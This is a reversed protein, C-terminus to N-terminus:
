AEKFEAYTGVEGRFSIYDTDKIDQTKLWAKAATFAGIPLNAIHDPVVLPNEKTYGEQLKATEEVVPKGNKEVINNGSTPDVGSDVIATNVEQEAQISEPARTAPTYTPVVGGAAKIEENANNVLRQLQSRITDVTGGELDATEKAAVQFDFDTKPGSGQSALAVTTLATVSSILLKYADANAATITGKKVADRIAPVVFQQRVM